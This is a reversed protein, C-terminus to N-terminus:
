LKVSNILNKIKSKLIQACPPKSFNNSICIIYKQLTRFMKHNYASTGEHVTHRLLGCVNHRILFPPINNIHYLYYYQINM